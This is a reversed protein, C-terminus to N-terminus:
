AKTECIGTYISLFQFDRAIKDDIDNLEIQQIDHMLLLVLRGVKLPTKKEKKEERIKKKQMKEKKCMMM